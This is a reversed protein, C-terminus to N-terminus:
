GAKSGDQGHTRPSQREQRWASPCRNTWRRFARIFHPADSYGLRMAIETVSLLGDELFRLAQERRIGDLADEFTTGAEQLRRQLTRPSIGLIRASVDLTVPGQSLRASILSRTAQLLQEGRLQFSVLLPDAADQAEGAFTPLLAFRQRLVNADLVIQSEVGEGFIVPAGFFEEYEHHRGRLSHPFVVRSPSWSQGLLSRLFQVHFAAAGECLIRSVGPAEEEFRHFWVAAGEARRLGLRLHTQMAPIQRAHASLCDAITKGSLLALGARGLREPSASSGLHLGVHPQDLADAAAELVAGIQSRHVIANRQTDEQAMGGARFIRESVVGSAHLHTPLMHLIAARAVPISM